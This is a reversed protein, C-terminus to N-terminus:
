PPSSTLDLQPNFRPNDRLLALKENITERQKERCKDLFKEVDKHLKLRYIV